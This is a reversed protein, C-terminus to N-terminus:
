FLIYVVSCVSYPVSKCARRRGESWAFRPRSRGGSHASATRLKARDKLAPAPSTVAYRWSGCGVGSPSLPHRSFGLLVAITESMTTETRETSADPSPSVLQHEFLAQRVM